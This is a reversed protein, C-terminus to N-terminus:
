FSSPVRTIVKAFQALYESHCGFTWFIDVNGMRFGTPLRNGNRYNKVLPFYYHTLLTIKSIKENMSKLQVDQVPKVPINKKNFITWIRLMFIKSRVIAQRLQFSMYAKRVKKDPTLSDTQRDTFKRCPQSRRWFRQDLILCVKYLGNNFLPFRNVNLTM